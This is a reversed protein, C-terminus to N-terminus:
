AAKAAEPILRQLSQTVFQQLNLAKQHMQFAPELHERLSKISFWESTQPQVIDQSQFYDILGLGVLRTLYAASIGQLTGGAVYTVFNTKLVSTIAQTTLEVMGLKVLLKAIEGAVTQAHDLSIKQQYAEGLDMVMQTSVAATALLDLAPLPNVFAAGASIWQYQDVLPLARERRSVDLQTKAVSKLHQALRLGTAWHMHQGEKVVRQSLHQTLAALNPAPTELWEQIEGSEQHRRVKIPSPNAAIAVLNEVAALPKLRQQLHQILSEQDIPLYQDQKNLVVTFAQHREHLAQLVDYESETLDGAIVFLVWDAALIEPLHAPNGAQVAQQFLAPLKQWHCQWPEIGSVAGSEALRQLITGKGVDSGGILLVQLQQQNLNTRLTEVQSRLEAVWAPVPRDASVPAIASSTASEPAPTAAQNEQLWQQVIVDVDTLIKTISERNVPVAADPVTASRTRRYWWWGAGAVAMLGLTNFQSLTHSLSDLGWLGLSLALGGVLIPRRVINVRAQKVPYRIRGDQTRDYPADDMLALLSAHDANGRRVWREGGNCKKM